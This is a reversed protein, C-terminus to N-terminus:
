SENYGPRVGRAKGDVSTREYPLMRARYPIGTPIPLESTSLTSPFAVSVLILLCLLM